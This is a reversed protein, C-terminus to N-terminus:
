FGLPETLKVWKGAKSVVLFAQASGLHKDPGFNLEPGGFRDRFGTIGEIAKTLTEVTLNPGAKDLAAVTIDAANYGYVAGMNPDQRFREKYQAVFTRMQANESDAYPMEALGMTYLGETGQAAAVFVDYTASSGLFDVDNWGMKRATAYPVISDRVITGMVVLDCKAQRLKTIPATFDQDTPKHTTVEAITLGLQKTQIVVGEHVEKGFDTDQYMSCITKKGKNKVMYDVGARVQDVYSANAQFKLPHLPEYMSRAATIPFLSPVNAALQDKFCANNMPTGIAVIFAFVKDRNILKNCAQVAKPVQYAADELIFKIKRGHIGGQANVDDFRMKVGNTSSVGYTAAPGSLDTHAGFIIETKTVGKVQASASVASAIVAAAAIAGAALMSVKGM